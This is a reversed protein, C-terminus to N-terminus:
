PGTYLGSSPTTHRPHTARDFVYGGLAFGVIFPALSTALVKRLSLISRKKTATM